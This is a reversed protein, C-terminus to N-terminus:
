KRLLLQYYGVATLLLGLLAWIIISSPEPIGSEPGGGGGRGLINDTDQAFTLVDNNDFVTPVGSQLFGLEVVRYLDGVPGVVADGQSDVPDRYTVLIEDWGGNMDFAIFDRGKSTGDTGPDPLTQDFVTGVNAVGGATFGELTLRSIGQNLGNVTLSWRRAPNQFYTDGQQTLTWDTGIAGGSQGGTPMWIVTEPGGIIRDATVMMGSMDAGTTTFTTIGVVSETTTNDEVITLAAAACPTAHLASIAFFVLFPTSFHQQSKSM